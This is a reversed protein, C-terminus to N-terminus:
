EGEAKKIAQRAQDFLDNGLVRHDNPDGATTEDGSIWFTSFEIINKCAELLADRQETLKKVEDSHIYRIDHEFEKEDFGWGWDHM